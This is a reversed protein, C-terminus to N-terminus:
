RRTRAMLTQQADCNLLRKIWNNVAPYRSYDFGALKGWALVLGGHIDAVTMKDEALWEKGTLHQELVPLFAELTQSAQDIAAQDPNGDSYKVQILMQLAAAELQNGIFLSWRQIEAVKAPTDAWLLNDGYSAALYFLIAQTEWLTLDGDQLTPVKGMPNLARYEPSSTQASRPAMDINEYEVGLAELACMVMGARSFIGGYVRIMM